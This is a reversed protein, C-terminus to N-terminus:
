ILGLIFFLFLIGSPLSILWHDLMIIVILSGFIAWSFTERRDKIILRVLFGVFFILSFLGTESLLLLFGNHVPQNVWSAQKHEDKNNLATTYNGIGVGFVLNDKILNESQVLYTRRENLSKQELRTDANIRVMLLDQYPKVVIVLLIISFFTLALFRRILWSDKKIILSIFLIILGLALALWASRSFTFFLVFIGFFYFIFLFISEFVERSSNLIKKKVLLYIALILSIALVGGFINPHDFGGYARLFRGSSAEVVAVGLEQPNHAALGLYKFAFSSQTLFQYIGLCSHLFISSLYVYILTFKNLYADQYDKALISERLLYFLSLVELFIVYHYFALVQDAAFFFSAFIFLELGALFYWVGFVHDDFDHRRAKYVFFLILVVFLILQSLYLSIETFNTEAPRLILKTQWPLLFVFLYFSYQFFIKVFKTLRM